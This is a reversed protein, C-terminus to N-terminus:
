VLELQHNKVSTQTVAFRKLGGPSKKTNKGIEDTSHDSHDGNKSKSLPFGKFVAHASIM